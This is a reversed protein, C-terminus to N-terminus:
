FAQVRENFASQKFPLGAGIINSLLTIIFPTTTFPILATEERM